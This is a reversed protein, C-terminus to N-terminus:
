ADAPYSGLVKFFRTLKKVEEFATVLSRDTSHGDVEAFFVYNWGDGAEPHSQLTLMNIGRESFQRLVDLLAGPTDKVSFALAMIDRGTRGSPRGGVVAFRVEEHGPNRRAMKLGAAVGIPETVLAAVGEEANALACAAVPSKADVSLLRTPGSALFREERAADAATAAVRVVTSADGTKNMLHCTASSEVVSAIRLDSAMLSEITAQIPGDTKGELPVLGYDARRGAVEALVAAPTEQATVAVAAGFRSRAAVFAPGGEPGLVSITLPMELTQCAALLERFVARLSAEPMDGGARAVLADLLGEISSLQAPDGGRLEGARRALRARKDILSLLDGDIKGLSQRLEELERKIDSM